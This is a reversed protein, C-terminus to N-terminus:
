PLEPIEQVEIASRDGDLLTGILFNRGDRRILQPAYFYSGPVDFGIKGSGNRRYPGTLRAATM